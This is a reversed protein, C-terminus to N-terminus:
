LERLEKELRDVEAQKRKKLNPNATEEVAKKKLKLEEELVKRQQEKASDATSAINDLLDNKGEVDVKEMTDMDEMNDGKQSSAPSPSDLLGKVMDEMDDDDDDDDDDDNEDDDDDDDDGNGDDDDSSNHMEENDDKDSAVDNLNGVDDEESEEDDEDDDDEEEDDEVEDEDEDEDMDEDVDEDEIEEEVAEEIIEYTSGECKEDKEILKDVEDQIEVPFNVIKKVTKRFRDKRVNKLPPALGHPYNQAVCKGFFMEDEMCGEEGEKKETCVFMQHIDGTKFLQRNNTTKHTEIICPMNFLKTNLSEGDISVCPKGGLQFQFRDGFDEGKEFAANLVKAHKDPLRLLFVDEHPIDM